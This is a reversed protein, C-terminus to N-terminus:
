SVLKPLPEFDDKFRYQGFPLNCTNPMKFQVEVVNQMYPKIFPEVDNNEKVFYKNYVFIILPLVVLSGLIAGIFGGTFKLRNM